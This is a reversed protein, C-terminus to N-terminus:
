VEKQKTELAFVVAFLTCYICTLVVCNIYVYGNMGESSVKHYLRSNEWELLKEISRRMQFVVAVNSLIGGGRLKANVTINSCICCPHTEGEQQPLHCAVSQLGIHLLLLPLWM